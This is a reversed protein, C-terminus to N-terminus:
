KKILNLPFPLRNLKLQPYPKPIAGFGAFFRALEPIMSGEFDLFEEKGSHDRIFKDIIAFMARNEKGKGSSASLLYIWRNRFHIFLAGAMMKEDDDMVCVIKADGSIKYRDFINNLFQVHTQNLRSFAHELKLKILINIDETYEPIVKKDISKGLNRKTNQVYSAHLIDYLPSLSLLYNIGAERTIGSMEEYNWENLPMNIWRFNSPINSIFEEILNKDIGSKSFVGLQQCFAPRILYSLGWKQKAPLPMVAEFDGSVLAEWGPNVQDLYWSTGYIMGNISNLLCHDWKPKDIENHSLYQIL